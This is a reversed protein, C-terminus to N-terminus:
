VPSNRIFSTFFLYGKGTLYTAIMRVTVSYSAAILSASTQAALSIVNKSRCDTETRDVERSFARLNSFRKKKKSGQAKKASHPHPM